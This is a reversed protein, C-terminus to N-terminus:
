KSTPNSKRIVIWRKPSKGFIAHDNTKNVEFLRPVGDSKRNADSILLTTDGDKEKKGVIAGVHGSTSEFPLEHTVFLDGVEMESTDEIAVYKYSGITMEKLWPQTRLKEPILDRAYVAVHSLVNKPSNDYGLSALLMTWAVCQVAEFDYKYTFYRYTQHDLNELIRKLGIKRDSSLSKYWESDKIFGGVKIPEGAEVFVPPQIKIYTRILNGLEVIDKLYPDTKIEEEFTSTNEEIYTARILNEQPTNTGWQIKEVLSSRFLLESAELGKNHKEYEEQLNEILALEKQLDPKDTRLM